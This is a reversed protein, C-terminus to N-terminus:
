GYIGAPKILLDTATWLTDTTASVSLIVAMYSCPYAAVATWRNYTTLSGVWTSGSSDWVASDWVAGTGPTVTASGVIPILNFDTNIGVSITPSASGTVFFPKVMTVQKMFGPAGTQDDLTAFASMATAVVNNGGIGTISAGDQYGMFALAVFDTGGFYLTDNFLAFCQAPWGTFQTWGKTQTHFCFQFNNAQISQPVNMLMVNEGPNLVLEFGPTGSYTSVLQSITPGIKYTLADSTDAQGKELYKSIPYLGDQTLLLLDGEYPLTCRKGVPSGIHTQAQIAWTGAGSPSTGSYILLDGKDSIAVLVAQVGITGGVDKSWTALKHLKGGNPFFPGFDFAYLNGGSSAVDTYYAKTSNNAVFWLRQQHQIVDNFSSLNVTAGNNDTTKFQGAGSPSSSQTCATWSTGDYMRPMDTGNVVFLYNNGGTSTSQSAWQWYPASATLGSVVPAGVAGGGTVDYISGGAVAFLKNTTSNKGHFPLLSSVSAPLGTAWKRYAQRVSLGQPTCVFNQISLGYAPDMSPLADVTNLGKFPAPLRCTSAM